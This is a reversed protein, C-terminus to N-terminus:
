TLRIWSDIEREDLERNIDSLAIIRLVADKIRIGSGRLALHVTGRETNFQIQLKDGPVAKELATMLEDSNRSLQKVHTLVDLGLLNMAEKNKQFRLRQQETGSH